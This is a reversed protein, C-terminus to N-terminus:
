ERELDNTQDYGKDGDFILVMRGIESQEKLIHLVRDADKWPYLSSVVPKIKGDEM